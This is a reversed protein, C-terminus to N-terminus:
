VDDNNKVGENHAKPLRPVKIPTLFSKIGKIIHGNALAAFGEAYNYPFSNGASMSMSYLSNSEIIRKMFLAGKICNDREIGEPM